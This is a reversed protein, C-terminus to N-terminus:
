GLERARNTAAAVADMLLGRFAGNELAHLGAITTGGPSTVMDKLEGPHRGTEMALRAAGYITQTALLYAEKRPLGQRVAGDALAELFAFVYAPGSGSLGTVVDLYREELEVVLGVSDFLRRALSLHETGASRGPAIATAGSLVLAPTNSMVRIVPTKKPVIAEIKAITIGAAVSIVLHEHTLDTAIEKLVMDMIQPKVALVIVRANNVLSPNDDAIHVQYRSLLERRRDDMPDYVRINGAPSTGSAVLGKIIAEAMNGGGVFGITESLTMLNDKRVLQPQFKCSFLAPSFTSITRPFVNKPRTKNQTLIVSNITDASDRRDPPL